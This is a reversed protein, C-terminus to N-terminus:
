AQSQRNRYDSYITDVFEKNTHILQLLERIWDNRELVPFPSGDGKDLKSIGSVVVEHMLSVDVMPKEETNQPIYGKQHYKVFGGPPVPLSAQPPQSASRAAKKGKKEKKPEAMPQQVASPEPIVAKSPPAAEEDDSLRDDVITYAPTGLISPAPTSMVSRSPPVNTTIPPLPIRPTPHTDVDQEDSEVMSSESEAASSSALLEDQIRSSSAARKAKAKSRRSAGRENPSAVPPQKQKTPMMKSQASSSDTVPRSSTSSISSDPLLSTFDSPTPTKHLDESYRLPPQRPMHLLTSLVDNNLVRGHVHTPQLMQAQVLVVKRENVVPVPYQLPPIASEKVTEESASIVIPNFTPISTTRPDTDASDKHTTLTARAATTEEPIPNAKVPGWVDRTTGKPAEWDAPWGNEPAIYENRCWTGGAIVVRVIEEAVREIETIQSGVMLMSLIDTEKSPRGAFREHSASQPDPVHQEPLKGQGGKWRDPWELGYKLLLHCRALLRIIFSTYLGDSAKMLFAPWMVDQRGSPVIIAMEPSFEIEDARHMIQIWSFIDKTNLIVFGLRSDLSDAEREVFFLPGEPGDLQHEWYADDDPDAQSAGRPKMLRIVAYPIQDHIIRISPDHRQLVRLNHAARHEDSIVSNIPHFPPPQTQVMPNPRGGNIPGTYSHSRPRSNGARPM